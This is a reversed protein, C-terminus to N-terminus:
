GSKSLAEVLEFDRSTVGGVDHTWLTLRVVTYRVDMDPHHDLEQALRAVRNVFAIADKFTGWRRVLRLRKRSYRWPSNTHKKLRLEIARGSLPRPVAKM